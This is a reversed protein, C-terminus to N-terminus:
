EFLVNAWVCVCVCVSLCVCAACIIWAIHWDFPAAPPRVTPRCGCVFNSVFACVCMLLWVSILMNTTHVRHHAVSTSASSTQRANEPYSYTHSHTKLM